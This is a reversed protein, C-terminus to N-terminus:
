RKPRKTRKNKGASKAARTPPAIGDAQLLTLPAGDQGELSLAASQSSLVGLVRSVTRSARDMETLLPENALIVRRRAANFAASMRPLNGLTEMLEKTNRQAFHISGAAAKMAELAQEREADTSSFDGSLEVQSEILSMFESMLSALKTSHTEAYRANDELSETVRDIVKRV